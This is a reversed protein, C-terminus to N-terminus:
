AQRVVYYPQSMLDTEFGPHMWAQGQQDYLEFFYLLPYQSDTYAGPITKRYRGDKLPMDEVKYAEAQNAHRYHLRARSVKYGSELAMEIALPKGREFRPPPLHECRPRSVPSAAFLAALDVDDPLPRTGSGSGSAAEPEKSLKEMDALDQEIAPLRDKWHGRMHPALGYTIDDVYVGDTKAVVRKWADRALRYHEVAKELIAQDGTREYLEYAVGARLKQAFFHGLGSQVSVDIALRRFSPDVLDAAKSKAEALHNEAAEADAELWRAVDLPSYRGSRSGEVIEDAFGAISSFLEPDLPSVTGFRRPSPSDGFPTVNYGSPNDSPPEFNIPYHRWKEDVIPNNTYIEPWFRDNATSQVHAVTFLPLVRSAHALAAECHGAAQGFETRLHRRWSEPSAEPNYLLRGWLRYTYAHKRWDGGSPRLSDDAYANRGGPLGSGKRGKFSLPESLELGLSGCFHAYRGYGAVIAPDGWLLTRQTGPWIRYLVGYERDERLYDGYGYRTFSRSTEVIEGQRNRSVRERERISAQHYPLGLHEGWYKPSVNVPNGTDLAMRILKHEISKSHIDIEVRRGARKVGEFVAKWFGYSGEPVGSEGHARLTIGKIAPCENLLKHLADRCYASHKEPSLGEITYNAKPSDNLQYANSWLALQFDLGRATVEESIWRMMALNRDREEDPLQTVRVKYGSLSFLFPYFFYFYADHVDPSGDYGLGFALSFRNFRQAMLMSLYPRWFSKDYFWSKDEVESQFYRTVSRIPNAPSEVTDEVGGLAALAAGSHTINDAMDLLGYVLGRVDSGAVLLAPQNGARGRVLGVSEPAESISMGARDLLPRSLASGRRAVVIVEDAASAGELGQYIQSSVGKVMFAEQLQALAWRVPPQSLIPDSADTVISVSSQGGQAYISPAFIHSGIAVAGSKKLFDRRTMGNAFEQRNRQKM